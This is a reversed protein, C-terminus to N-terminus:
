TASRVLRELHPKIRGAVKEWTYNEIFTRYANNGLQAAYDADGLISVLKEALVASNGDPILAGNIGEHIYEPIACTDAGICPVGHSMAEHFVVGWPLFHAPVVFVTAQDYLDLLQRASVKSFWTIGPTPDSQPQQTGVIILRAEPLQRKVEPWADLLVYGGKREFDFGAFLALQRDYQHAAVTEADAPPLSGSMGTPIVKKPSVGYDEIMSQCVHKGWPFLCAANQYLETERQIWREYARKNEIPAWKPWYKRSLLFTNDTSVVYCRNKFDTGPAFLALQQFIVDYPENLESIFKEILQTRMDFAAPSLSVNRRWTDRNFSFARLRNYQRLLGHLRPVVHGVLRFGDRNLENYIGGIKGVVQGNELRQPFESIGLVRIVDNNEFTKSRDM